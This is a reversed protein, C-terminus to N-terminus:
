NGLSHMQMTCAEDMPGGLAQTSLAITAMLCLARSAVEM